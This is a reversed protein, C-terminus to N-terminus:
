NQTSRLTSISESLDGDDMIRRWKAIDAEEWNLGRYRGGLHPPPLHHLIWSFYSRKLVFQIFIDM